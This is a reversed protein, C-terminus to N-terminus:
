CCCRCSRCSQPVPRHGVDAGADVWGRAMGAIAGIIVGVHHGRADGRPRGRAIRGGYLMRALMDQGLDDTGM